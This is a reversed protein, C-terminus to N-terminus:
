VVVPWGQPQAAADAKGQPESAAGQVAVAQGQSNWISVAPRGTLTCTAGGVNTLDISGEVSGMAGELSVTGQLDSAACATSPPASSGSTGPLTGGPGHLAGLGASAGAVILVAGLVSALANRAVRRRARGL